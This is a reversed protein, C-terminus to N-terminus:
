KRWGGFNYRKILSYQVVGKALIMVKGTHLHIMHVATLGSPWNQAAAWSGAM